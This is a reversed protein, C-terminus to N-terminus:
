KSRALRSEEFLTKMAEPYGEVFDKLGEGM